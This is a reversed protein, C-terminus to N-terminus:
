PNILTGNPSVYKIETQLNHGTLQLVTKRIHDILALVDKATEPNGHSLTNIIFNAHSSSIKANGIQFGKLGAQEIMQGPPGFKAYFAPDSVFVSGCNPERRPFKIRRSRLISLMDKRIGSKDNVSRLTLRIKSIADGNHQFVSHRYSFMCEANSYLKIEGREDVAEVSHVCEGIGRRLSGGNMCVLGGITGPIGCTHEIGSLGLLMAKRALKPVWVGPDTIITNVDFHLSSFNSGIHIAIARLGADSFLLNSTAGIIVSPLSNRYIWYRIEALQDTTRPCVVVDANGGIKWRSFQSLPVDTAVIGPFVTLLERVASRSIKRSDSQRM